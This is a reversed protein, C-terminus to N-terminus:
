SARDWIDEDGGPPWTQRGNLDFIREIVPARWRSTQAAELPRPITANIPPSKGSPDEARPRQAEERRAPRPAPREMWPIMAWFRKHRVSRYTLDGDVSAILSREVSVRLISGLTLLVLTLVFMNWLTLRLRVSQFFPFTRM